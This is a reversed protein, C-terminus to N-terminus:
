CCFGFGGDDQLRSDDEHGLLSEFMSPQGSKIQNMASRAAMAQGLSM